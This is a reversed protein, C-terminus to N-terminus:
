RDDITGFKHLQALLEHPKDLGNLLHRFERYAPVTTLAHRLTDALKARALRPASEPSCGSLEAHFRTYHRGRRWSVPLRAYAEGTLSEYWQPSAIYANLFPHILDEIAM